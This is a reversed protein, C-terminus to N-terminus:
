LRACGSRIEIDMLESMADFPVQPAYTSYLDEWLNEDIFVQGM